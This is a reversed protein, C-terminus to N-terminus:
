LQFIRSLLIVSCHAGLAFLMRCCGETVLEQSEQPTVPSDGHPQFGRHTGPEQLMNLEKELCAECGKGASPPSSQASDQRERREQGPHEGLRRQGRRQKPSGELRELVQLLHTAKSGRRVLAKCSAEGFLIGLIPCTSALSRTERKTEWAEASRLHIKLGSVQLSKDGAPPSPFPQTRHQPQSLLLTIAAQHFPGKM